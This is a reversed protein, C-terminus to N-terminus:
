RVHAKRWGLDKCEVFVLCIWGVVCLGQGDNGITGIRWSRGIGGDEFKWELERGEEVAAVCGEYEEKVYVEKGGVV